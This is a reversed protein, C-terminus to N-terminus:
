LKSIAPILHNVVYHQHSESTPHMGDLEFSLKNDRAYEYMGGTKNWFIWNSFDIMNYLPGINRSYTDKSLVNPWAHPKQYSYTPYHLIDMYTHNVLKVQHSECYWQVRLFNEYSQIALAQDSLFNTVLNRKFLNIHHNKFDCGMTGMLYGDINNTEWSDTEDIYNVPNASSGSLLTSYNLTEDSSIFVDTRDIGSWMVSALIESPDTGSDLLRQIGHIISKAAWANGASALGYQHDGQISMNISLWHPWLHCSRASFSCGSTVLHKFIHQM